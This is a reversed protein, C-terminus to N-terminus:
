LATQGAARQLMDQVSAYNWGRKGTSTLLGREDLKKAIGLASTIGAAQIEHIIPLIKADFEARLRRGAIGSRDVIKTPDTNFMGIKIQLNAFAQDLAAQSLMQRPQRDTLFVPGTPKSEAKATPLAIVNSAPAPNEAATKYRAMQAMQMYLRSTRLSRDSNEALWAMFEGRKMGAKAKLLREGETICHELHAPSIESYDEEAYARRWLTDHVIPAMPIQRVGAESKPAKIKRLWASRSVRIIRADFDVDEWQLARLEGSRMGTFAATVFLDRRWGKPASDLLLEIDAKTPIDIGVLKKRQQLRKPKCADIVDVVGQNCYRRKKALRVIQKIEVYITHAHALSVEEAIKKFLSAIMHEKLQSLKVNAFPATRVHRNFRNLAGRAYSETCELDVRELWIEGAELFTITDRDPTYTGDDIEGLVQTLYEEAQRRLEFYRQGGHPRLDAVWVIKEKGRSVIRRKRITAM